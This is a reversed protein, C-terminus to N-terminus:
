WRNGRGCIVLHVWISFVEIRNRRRVQDADWKLVVEELSESKSLTDWLPLHFRILNLAELVWNSGMEKDFNRVVRTEEKMKRYNWRKVWHGYNTDRDYESKRPFVMNCFCSYRGRFFGSTRNLHQFKKEESRNNLKYLPNIWEQLPYQEWM